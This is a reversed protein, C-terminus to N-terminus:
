PQSMAAPRTSRGYGRIDVLYADFGRKAAYDLWSGGPLNLDFGTESPYTAGHVFLVIREPGFTTVNAPRKNRVHLQFGPDVAPVMFTETVVTTGEVGTPTTTACGSAALVVASATAIAFMLRFRM